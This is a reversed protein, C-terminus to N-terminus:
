SRQPRRTDRDPAPGPSRARDCWILLPTKELEFQWTVKRNLDVEASVEALLAELDVEAFEPEWEHTIEVLDTLFQNAERVADDIEPVRHGHVNCWLSSVGDLYRNRDTDVLHFREAAAIIMEGDMAQVTRGDIVIDPM